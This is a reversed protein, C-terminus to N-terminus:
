ELDLSTFTVQGDDITIVGAQYFRDVGGSGTYEYSADSGSADFRLSGPDAPVVAWGASLESGRSGDYAEFTVTPRTLLTWTLTTYPYGSNDIISFNCAPGPATTAQAVCGDLQANVAAQAATVGAETLTVPLEADLNQSSGLHPAITVTEASYLDTGGVPEFTYTGPLAPVDLVTATTYEPLDVGNVALSMGAPRPFAIRVTPLASEDVRWTTFFLAERGVKHVYLETTYTEEGQTIEVELTAMDPGESTGVITYDSIGASAAELVGDQLLYGPGTPKSALAEIAATDDGEIIADLFRSAAAEPTRQAALVAFTVVLGVIIM